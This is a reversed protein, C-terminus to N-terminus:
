QKVLRISKKNTGQRIEAYYIGAPWQQEITFTTGPKLKNRSLILSGSANYIKMSVENPKDSEIKFTFLSHGPNPSVSIGLDSIDTEEIRVENSTTKQTTHCEGLVDGHNIHAMASNTNVQLTNGNHCINIKNPQGGVTINVVEVTFNPKPILVCGNQDTITLTYSTTQSPAVQIINTGQGGTINNPSISAHWAYTLTGTGGTVNSSLTAASPGFGVFLTNLPQNPLVPNPNMTIPSATIGVPETITITKQSICGGADTVKFLYTGASKSFTGTGSYPLTGGFASVIVNTSTGNCFISAATVVIQLPDPEIIITSTTASCGNADTITFSHTGAPRTFTGSGSYPSSGNSGSVFIQSSGGNCSIPTYTINILPKPFVSITISACEGPSGSCGGEGRVYYTTTQSPNVTISRGTGILQGGCTGSYWKWEIADNLQGSSINLQTSFGTNSCTSIGNTSSIIPIDPVMFSPSMQRVVNRSINFDTYSVIPIGKTSILFHVGGGWDAITNLGLNDWSNTSANYYRVFTAGVGLGNQYCVYPVNAKNIKIGQARANSTIFGTNGLTVWNTGDFKKVVSIYGPIEMYFIYPNNNEDFAIYPVSAQTTSASAPGVNQWSTGNFKKVNVRHNATNVFVIFPVNNKDFQIDLTGTYISSAGILAWNTGDYKYISGGSVIYPVGNQDVRINGIGATAFGPSGVYSWAGNEFKMVTGGNGNAADKFSVFIIGTSSIDMVMPFSIVGASFGPNGVYVYGSGNFVKVSAKLGNEVDRILLYPKDNQDISFGHDGASTQPSGILSWTTTNSILDDCDSNNLVYGLPQNCSNQQIAPNGFGDGDADEYWVTSNNILVATGTMNSSCNNSTKLATVTYIGAQTFSGFNLSFGTGAILSGVNDAGNKLQYSVGTESNSLGISIGTPSSCSTGGGTVSFAIPPTSNNITATGLMYGVSWQNSALVTYIGESTQNGFSIATGTGEITSGINNENLILQYDVGPESDELGIAIGAGNCNTGGGTVAYKLPSPKGYRWLDNINGGNFNKDYAEPGGGFMWFNGSADKWTVGLRRAGPVNAPSSTEATGYIGGGTNGRMLTWQNIGPDYIWLENTPGGFYGGFMWFKGDDAIWTSPGEKAPPNNSPSTSGTAGSSGYSSPSNSGKMWIWQNTSPNFKWLDNYRLGNSYGGFLWFNGNADRWSGSGYRGNPTNTSAAIAQTGYNYDPNHLNSGNIWTWENTLPNYKWIDNLMGFGASSYGEGGFMWFNGNADVWSNGPYRSGPKNTPNSIGQTGYIGTNVTNNDGNIWTWQNTVPDYKWVDNLLGSSGTSAYGNGGFLWLCGSQDTWSANTYRAGPKNSASAIGKTGYVGYIVGSTNDGKIWTWRNTTRDFRWLDNMFGTSGASAFGIGGFLWLNGNNDVWTVAGYRAGPTNSSSPTGQIGYIGNQNITSAGKEWTWYNEQAYSTYPHVSCGFLIFFVITRLM